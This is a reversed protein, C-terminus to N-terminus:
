KFCVLTINKKKDFGWSISNIIVRVQFFSRETTWIILIFLRDYRGADANEAGISSSWGSAARGHLFSSLYPSEKRVWPNPTPKSNGHSMNGRAATIKLSSRWCQEYSWLSQHPNNSRSPFTMAIQWYWGKIVRIQTARPSPMGSEPM